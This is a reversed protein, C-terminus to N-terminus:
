NIRGRNMRVDGEGASVASFPRASTGGAYREFRMTFTEQGASLHQLLAAGVVDKKM